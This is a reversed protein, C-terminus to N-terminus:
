RRQYFRVTWLDHTWQETLRLSTDSQVEMALARDAAAVKVLTPTRLDHVSPTIELVVAGAPLAASASREKSVNVHALRSSLDRWDLAFPRAEIGFSDLFVAELHHQRLAYALTPVDQFGTAVTLDNGVKGSSAVMTAVRGLATKSEQTILQDAQVSQVLLVGTLVCAVARALLHREALAVPILLLAPVVVRLYRSHWAPQVLVSVSYGGALTLAVVSFIIVLTPELHRDRIALAVGVVLVIVLVTAARSGGAADIMGAKLVTADPARLWPAGTHRRQYMMTPVWPSFALGAGLAAGVVSRARALPCALLCAIVLTGSLAAVYLMGWAHSYLCLAETAALGAVWGAGPARVVKIGLGLSALGLLAVLAYPRVETSSAVLAPSVAMLGAALFAGQYRAVLYGVWAGLPVTAVGLVLTLGRTAAPSSGVLHMWGALLAYFLPPSGDARLLSPLHGVHQAIGITIAEDEWADVRMGPLRLLAGVLSWALALALVTLREPPHLRPRSEGRHPTTTCWPGFLPQEREHGATAPCRTLELAGVRVLRDDVSKGPVMLAGRGGAM